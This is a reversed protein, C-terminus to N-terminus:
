SNRSDGARKKRREEIVTALQVTGSLNMDVVDAVKGETREAVERLQLVGSMRGGTLTKLIAEKIHKRNQPNALLQEYMKTIHNKKPRGSPNGSVGKQFRHGKVRDIRSAEPKNGQQARSVPDM